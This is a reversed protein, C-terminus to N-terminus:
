DVIRIIMYKPDSLNPFHERLDLISKKDSEDISQPELVIIDKKVEIQIGIVHSIENEQLERYKREGVRYIQLKSNSLLERQKLLEILSIMTTFFFYNFYFFFLSSNSAYPSGIRINIDEDYIENEIDRLYYFLLKRNYKNMLHYQIVRVINFSDLNFVQKFIRYLLRNEDKQDKATTYSKQARHYPSYILGYPFYDGILEKLSTLNHLKLPYGYVYRCSMEILLSIDPIIKIM